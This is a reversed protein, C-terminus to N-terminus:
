RKRKNRELILSLELSRERLLKRVREREADDTSGELKHKLEAMEKLREVEEPVFDNSKLISYGLRVDEPTAFYADLDLPKGTGKLNDFEGRNIAQEIQKDVFKEISM